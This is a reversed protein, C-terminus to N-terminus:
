IDEARVTNLESAISRNNTFYDDMPVERRHRATEAAETYKQSLERCQAESFLSRDAQAKVAEALVDASMKEALALDNLDKISWRM